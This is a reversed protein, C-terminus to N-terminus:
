IPEKASPGAFSVLPYVTPGHFVVEQNLVPTEFPGETLNHLAAYLGVMPEKECGSSAALGSQLLIADITMDWTDPGM